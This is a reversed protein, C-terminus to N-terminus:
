VETVVVEAEEEGSDTVLSPLRDVVELFEDDRDAQTIESIHKARFRFSGGPQVLAGAALNAKNYSIPAFDILIDYEAPIM